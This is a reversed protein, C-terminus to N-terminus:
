IMGLCNRFRMSRVPNPSNRKLSQLPSSPKGSSRGSYAPADIRTAPRLKPQPEERSCAGHASSSWPKRTTIAGLKASMKRVLQWM